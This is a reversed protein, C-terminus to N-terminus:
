SADAMPLEEQVSQPKAQEPLRFDYPSADPNTRLAAAQTSVLWAYYIAFKVQKSTADAIILEADELPVRTVFAHLETNGNRTRMVSMLDQDSPGTARGARIDDARVRGLVALYDSLSLERASADAIILEADEVPVRTIFQRRPGKSPRGVTRKRRIESDRTNM